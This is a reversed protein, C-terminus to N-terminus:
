EDITETQLGKFDAVPVLTVLTYLPSKADESENRRRSMRVRVRRPVNRIGNSWISKNLKPDVRVDATGMEKMAFNRIAKVAGPARDKFSKGHIYKHIHVTYERTIVETMIRKKEAM